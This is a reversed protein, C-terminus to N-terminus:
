IFCPHKFGGKISKLRFGKKQMQLYLWKINSLDVKSLNGHREEKKKCKKCMEM